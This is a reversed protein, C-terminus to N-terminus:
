FRSPPHHMHHRWHASEDRTMIFGANFNKHHQKLNAEEQKGDEVDHGVEDYGSVLPLTTLATCFTLESSFERRDTVRLFCRQTQPSVIRVGLM